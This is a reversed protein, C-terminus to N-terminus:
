IALVVMATPEVKKVYNEQMVGVVEMVKQAFELADARPLRTGELISTRATEFAELKIGGDVLQQYEKRLKRQAELRPMRELLTRGEEAFKAPVKGDKVLEAFKELRKQM